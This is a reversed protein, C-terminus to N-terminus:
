NTPYHRLTYTRGYHSITSDNLSKVHVISDLWDAFIEINNGRQTYYCSPYIDVIGSENFGMTAFACVSDNLFKFQEFEFDNPRRESMYHKGSVNYISEESPRECAM